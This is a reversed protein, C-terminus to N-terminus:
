PWSFDLFEQWSVRQVGGVSQEHQRWQKMRANDLVEIAAEIKRVDTRDYWYAYRRFHYELRTVYDDYDQINMMKCREM